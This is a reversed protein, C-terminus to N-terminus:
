VDVKDTKLLIDTKPPQAQQIVYNVVWIDKILKRSVLKIYLNAM